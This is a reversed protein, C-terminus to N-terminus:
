PTTSTGAKAVGTSEVRGRSAGDVTRRDSPSSDLEIYLDTELPIFTMPEGLQEGVDMHGSAMSRVRVIAHPEKVRDMAVGLREALEGIQETAENM